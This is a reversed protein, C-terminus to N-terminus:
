NFYQKADKDSLILEKLKDTSINISKDELIFNIDSSINKKDLKILEIVRDLDLKISPLTINLRLLVTDLKSLNDKAFLLFVLRLGLIVCLGHSIGSLTEIAHGFTHGLNLHVRVGSENPDLSTIKYKYESCMFILDTLDNDLNNFIDKSLFCYKALEGLGSEIERKPLSDLFPYFIYINEPRHFNGVLNKGLSTNIGVKGGISADIMSLLTTPIVDWQVGRLITSAVFGALDSTAGGGIALIKSNRRIKHSLFLSIIKEYVQLNKSKEPDDIIFAVADFSDKLYLDKVKRDIIIFDSNKVVELLKTKDIKQM